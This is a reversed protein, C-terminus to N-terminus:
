AGPSGYTEPLQTRLWTYDPGDIVAANNSQIRFGFYNSTTRSRVAAEAFWWDDWNYRAALTADTCSFQLGIYRRRGAGRWRENLTRAQADTFTWVPCHVAAAGSEAVIQEGNPWMPDPLAVRRPRWQSWEGDSEGILTIANVSIGFDQLLRRTPVWCYRFSQEPSSQDVLHCQLLDDDVFARSFKLLTEPSFHLYDIAVAARPKARMWGTRIPKVSEVACDSNLTILSLSPEDSGWGGFEGRENSRPVPGCSDSLLVPFSEPSRWLKREQHTGFMTAVTDRDDRSTRSLMYLSKRHSHGTLVLAVKRHKDFLATYADARCSEFTGQDHNTYPQAAFYWRARITGHSPEGESVEPIAGDFSAFTFHTIVLASKNADGLSMQLLGLQVSDMRTKARPLLGFGQGTETPDANIMREAEGWGLGVVNNRPHEVLFDVFPCFLAHYWRMIPADFNFKQEVAAFSNGFLLV